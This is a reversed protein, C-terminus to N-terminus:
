TYEGFHLVLTSLLAVSHQSRPDGLLVRARLTARKLVRSGTTSLVGPCYKTCMRVAILSEPFAGTPRTPDM